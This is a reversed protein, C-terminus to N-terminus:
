VLSDAALTHTRRFPLIGSSSLKATLRAPIMVGGTIPNMTAAVPENTPARINMAITANIPTKEQMKMTPSMWRM